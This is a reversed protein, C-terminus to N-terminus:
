VLQFIHANCTSLITRHSFWLRRCIDAGISLTDIGESGGPVVHNEREFVILFSLPLLLALRFLLKADPFLVSGHTFSTKTFETFRFDLRACQGDVGFDLSFNLHRLSASHVNRHFPWFVSLRAPLKNFLFALHEKHLMHNLRFVLFNGLKHLMLVHALHSKTAGFLEKLVVSLAENVEESANLFLRALGTVLELGELLLSVLFLLLQALEDVLARGLM